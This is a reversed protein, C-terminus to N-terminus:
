LALVSIVFVCDSVHSYRALTPLFGLDSTCNLNFLTIFLFELM